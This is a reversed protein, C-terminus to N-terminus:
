QAHRGLWDPSIVTLKPLSYLVMATATECGNVSMRGYFVTLLFVGRRITETPDKANEWDM